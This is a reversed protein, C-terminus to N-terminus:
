CRYHTYIYIYISRNSPNIFSATSIIQPEMIYVSLNKLVPELIYSNVHPSVSLMTVAYAQKIGGGLDSVYALLIYVNLKCRVHFV